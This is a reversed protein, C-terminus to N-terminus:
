LENEPAIAVITGGIASKGDQGRGDPARRSIWGLLCLLWRVM